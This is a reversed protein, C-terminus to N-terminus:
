VIKELHHVPASCVAPYLFQLLVTQVADVDL